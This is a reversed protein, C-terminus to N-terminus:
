SASAGRLQTKIREIGSVCQLVGTLTDQYLYRPLRYWQDTADRSLGSRLNGPEGTVAGWLGTRTMVAVERESFDHSRGGPYCFVPVPNSLQSRLHRWSGAIERESEEAPLASLIPHTVTHPGFTVGRNELARAEDWTLARFSEPPQSPLEVEATRSLEKICALRDAKPARYCRDVLARWGARGAGSELSFQVQENGLRASLERRKTQTFIYAIKDMWFWMQGDLFDTVAFVTLPCDFEAFIPAAVLGADSYGDDITFAVARKLEEGNRLRRFLEAISILEYRRRRLQALIHRLNQPNHGSIGLAPANFRHAMFITAESHTLMALQEPLVPLVM